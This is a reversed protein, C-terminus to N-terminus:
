LKKKNKIHKDTIIKYGTEIKEFGQVKLGKFGFTNLNMDIIIYPGGSPDVINVKDTLSEVLPLYKSYVHEEKIVDYTYAESEFKELTLCHDSYCEDELYKAHAKTYDNPYGIRCFEFDGEWIVNQDDDLKFTFLDDYRNIYTRM